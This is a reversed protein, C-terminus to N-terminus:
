LRRRRSWLRLSQRSCGLQQYWRHHRRPFFRGALTPGGKLFVRLLNLGIAPFLHLTEKIVAQLYSCGQAEKEAITKNTSRAKLEEVEERLKELAQPHKRLFYM